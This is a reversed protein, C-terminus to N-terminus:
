VLQAIFTKLCRWSSCICFFSNEIDFVYKQEIISVFISHKCIELNRRKLIILGGNWFM